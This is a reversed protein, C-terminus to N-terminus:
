KDEAEIGKLKNIQKQVFATDESKPFDKLFQEYRTIAETTDGKKQNIYGGWVSAQEGIATEGFDAIIKDYAAVAEDYARDRYTLDALAMRGEGSLSDLPDGADILKNFWEAAEAKGGRYKYKDAIEFALTRSSDTEAKSLLDELTGIDNEYDTLTKLFDDVEMYGVIRDIESGDARVLVSTPYGSVFYEKALATDEKANVSALVMENAFFAVAKEDSLVVTDLRKCWDCSNTYFKILINNDTAKAQEISTSLSTVFASETVEATKEDACTIVTAVLALMMLAFLLQRM